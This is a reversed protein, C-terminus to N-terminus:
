RGALERVLAVLARPEIPKAAHMQYGAELARRVDLPGPGAELVRAALAWQGYPTVDWEVGWEARTTSTKGECVVTLTAAHAYTKAGLVTTWEWRASM